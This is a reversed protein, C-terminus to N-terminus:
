DVVVSKSTSMKGKHIDAEKLEEARTRTLEISILRRKQVQVASFLYTQHRFPVEM